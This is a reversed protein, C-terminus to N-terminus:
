DASALVKIFLARCDSAIIKRHETYFLQRLDAYLEQLGTDRCAKEIELSHKNSVEKHRILLLVLEEEM